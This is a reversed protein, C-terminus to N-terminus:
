LEVESVMVSVTAVTNVSDNLYDIRVFHEIDRIVFKKSLENKNWFKKNRNNVTINLFEGVKFPNSELEFSDILEIRM